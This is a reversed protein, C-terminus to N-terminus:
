RNRTFPPIGGNGPTNSPNPQQGPDVPPPPTPSPVSYQPNENGIFNPQNFKVNDKKPNMAAMAETMFKKWISTPIGSGWITAGGKDKIAQEEKKNGVWVAAAIKKDFGVMWAHANTNISNNAEWTGTKGATDFGANNLAPLAASGVHQLTYSLDAVAASNLIPKGNTTLTEGYVTKDGDVVKLM